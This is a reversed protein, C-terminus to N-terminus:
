RRRRRALWLALAITIAGFASGSPQASVIACGFPTSGTVPASENAPGANPGPSPKNENSPGAGTGSTGSGSAGGNGTAASGGTGAPSGAGPAPGSTSGSGGTGAPGAGGSGSPGPKGSTGATSGGSSGGSGAPPMPAADAAAGADAPSANGGPMGGAMFNEMGPVKSADLTSGASVQVMTIRVKSPFLKDVDSRKHLHGSDGMGKIVLHMEKIGQPWSIATNQWWSTMKEVRDYVGKDTYRGSGACGYGPGIPRNPMYCYSWHNPEGSAPKELVETRIYVNGNRYDVPATWNNGPPQSLMGGRVFFHSGAKDVAAKTIEFTQQFLVFQEARAPAARGALVGAISASLFFLASPRALKM